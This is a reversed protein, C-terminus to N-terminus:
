KKIDEISTKAKNSRRFREIQFIIKDETLEEKSQNNIYMYLFTEGVYISFEFDVLNGKLSNVINLIEKSYEEDSLGARLTINIEYSSDTKEM